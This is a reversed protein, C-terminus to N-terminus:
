DDKNLFKRHEKAILQDALIVSEAEKWRGKIVDRAYYCAWFPDKAIISEAEVWRGEIIFRAYLYASYPDSAIMPEAEEWRGEIVEIAYWCAWSALDQPTSDKLLEVVSSFKKLTNLVDQCAGAKEANAILEQLNYDSLKM